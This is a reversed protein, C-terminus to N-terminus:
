ATESEEVILHKKIMSEISPKDLEKGIFVFSSRVAEDKQWALGDSVSYGKRVTQLLIRKDYDNVAVVAKIRFVNNLNVSLFMALDKILARLDIFGDFFLTFTKIGHIGASEFAPLVELKTSFSSASFAKKDIFADIDFGGNVAAYMEATPNIKGLEINIEQLREVSVLDIKNILVFDGFSIQRSSDSIESLWFDINEADVLTMVSMLEFVNAVSDNQIFHAAISSPDAIGTTEIVLRDFNDRQASVEELVDLLEDNLSCCICGATLGILDVDKGAVMQEDINVKGVENEIIFLREQDRTTMWNNIFSTKGSGLYGTVIYVPIKKM